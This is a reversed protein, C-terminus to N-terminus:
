IWGVVLLGHVGLGGHRRQGVLVKVVALLMYLWNTFASQIVVVGEEM